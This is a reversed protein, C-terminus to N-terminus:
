IAAVLDCSRTVATTTFLTWAPGRLYRALILLLLFSYGQEKHWKKNEIFAHEIFNVTM